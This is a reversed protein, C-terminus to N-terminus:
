FTTTLSDLITVLKPIAQNTEDIVQEHSPEFINYTIPYYNCVPLSYLLPKVGISNLYTSEPLISMGVLDAGFQLLMKYEAVTGLAPGRQYAYILGETEKHSICKTSSSLRPINELTITSSISQWVGVKAKSSLAGSASTIIWNTIQYKESVYKLPAVSQEYSYGEYLHLKGSLIILPTGNIKAEYIIHDHGELTTIEFDIFSDYSISKNLTVFDILSNMGSGLVIAIM